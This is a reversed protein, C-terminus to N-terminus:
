NAIARSLHDRFRDLETATMGLHILLTDDLADVSRIGEELIAIGAEAFIEEITTRAIKLMGIRTPFLGLIQDLSFNGLEHEVRCDVTQKLHTAFVGGSRFLNLLDRRRRRVKSKTDTRTERNSSTKM